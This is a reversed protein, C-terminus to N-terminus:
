KQKDRYGKEVSGEGSSFLKGTKIYMCPSPVDAELFRFGFYDAQPEGPM